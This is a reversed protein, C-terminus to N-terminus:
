QRVRPLLAFYIEVLLKMRWVGGDPLTDSVILLVSLDILDLLNPRIIGGM